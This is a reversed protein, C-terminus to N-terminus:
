DPMSEPDPAQDSNKIEFIRDKLDRARDKIRSGASASVLIDPLLKMAKDYEGTKFFLAAIIYDVTYQDMNGCMPYGETQRAKIFEELAKRQLEKETVRCEELKKSLDPDTDSLSQREGRALWSMSLYLYAKESAKSSTAMLSAFAMQYRGMAEQYTYITKGDNDKVPKFSKSVQERVMKKQNATINSFNRILAAYGCQPCAIVAYKLMDVPDYVPRLDTDTSVVRARNAKVALSKFSRDCVPCDYSRALLLTPEQEQKKKKEAAEKDRAEKAAREANEQASAEAPKGTNNAGNADSSKAAGRNRLGSLIGM